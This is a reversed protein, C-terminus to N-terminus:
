TIPDAKRRGIKRRATSRIRTGTTQIGRLAKWLNDPELINLVVIECNISTNLVDYVRHLTLPRESTSHDLYKALESKNSIDIESAIQQTFPDEIGDVMTGLILREAGLYVALYAAITDSSIITYNNGGEPFIDGYTLVTRNTELGYEIAKTTLGEIKGDKVNLFQSPHVLLRSHIERGLISDVTFVLSRISDKVHKLGKLFQESDTVNTLHKRAPVIGFKGPGFIVLLPGDYSHFQSAVLHLAEYDIIPISINKPAFASGDISVITLGTM